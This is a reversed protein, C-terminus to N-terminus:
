EHGAGVAAAAVEVTGMFEHMLCPIDLVSSYAAHATKNLM